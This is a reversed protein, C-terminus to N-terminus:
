SNQGCPPLTDAETCALIGGGGPLLCGGQCCVGGPASVGGEPGSVGEPLLSGGWASGGGRLLGM